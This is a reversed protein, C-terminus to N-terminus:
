PAAPSPRMFTPIAAFVNSYRFTQEPESSSRTVIGLELGANNPGLSVVGHLFKEENCNEGGEGGARCKGLIGAICLGHALVALREGAGGLGAEHLLAHHFAARGLGDAGVALFERAGGLAAEHLLALGAGLRM